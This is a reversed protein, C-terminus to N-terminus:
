HFVMVYVTWLLLPPYIIMVPISESKGKVIQVCFIILLHFYIVSSHLALYLVCTQCLLKLITPVQEM